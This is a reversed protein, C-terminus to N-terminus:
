PNRPKYFRDRTWYQPNERIYKSIRKYAADSKIITDYFNRQWVDHIPTNSRFWKTVGIEFGRIIAGLSGPIIKQFQNQRLPEIDQARGIVGEQIRGIVGEQIRGM